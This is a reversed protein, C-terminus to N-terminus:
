RVSFLPRAPDRESIYVAKRPLALKHSPYDAVESDKEVSANKSALIDEESSACTQGLFLIVLMVGTKRREPKKM